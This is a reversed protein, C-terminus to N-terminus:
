GPMGRCTRRCAGPTTGLLRHFLTTGVERAFHREFTLVSMGARAALEAVPLPRHLRTLAWDLVPALTNSPAPGRRWAWSAARACSDCCTGGTAGKGSGLNHRILDDLPATM